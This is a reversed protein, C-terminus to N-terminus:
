PANQGVEICTLPTRGVVDCPSPSQGVMACTPLGQRDSPMNAPKEGAYPKNGLNEGDLHM